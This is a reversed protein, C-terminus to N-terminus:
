RINGAISKFVAQVILFTLVMIIVTSVIELTYNSVFNSTIYISLISGLIISTIFTATRNDFSMNYEYM